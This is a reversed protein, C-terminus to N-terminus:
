STKHDGYNNESSKHESPSWKRLFAAAENASHKVRFNSINM